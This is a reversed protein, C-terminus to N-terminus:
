GQSRDYITIMEVLGYGVRQGLFLGKVNVFGAYVSESIANPGYIEQDRRVSQINLADGSEFELRWSQPYTVNTKKSTWTNKWNAKLDYALVYQSEEGVRVTAFRNTTPSAPAELDFAWISAKINSGLFHLQFWTWNSPATFGAQRDYWTLSRAPDIDYTTGNLTVSGTTRLAPVAWETSNGFEPGFTIVGNGGNLLVKSKATFALEYSYHETTGFIDMSSIKDDSTARIGYNEYKINIPAATPSSSNDPLCYSLDNWYELTHLDLLSSKCTSQSYASGLVHQLALFQEGSTATLFSCYWFSGANSQDEVLDYRAALRTNEWTSHTDPRFQFQSRSRSCLGTASLGLLALFLKGSTM